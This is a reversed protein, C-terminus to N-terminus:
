QKVQLAMQGVLAMEKGPFVVGSLTSDISRERLFTTNVERRPNRAIGNKRIEGDRLLADSFSM